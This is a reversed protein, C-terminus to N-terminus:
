ALDFGAQQMQEDLVRRSRKDDVLVHTRFHATIQLPVKAFENGVPRMVVFVRELAAVVHRCVDFRCQESAAQRDRNTAAAKKEAGPLADVEAFMPIVAPRPVNDRCYGALLRVM